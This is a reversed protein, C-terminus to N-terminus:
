WVPPVARLSPGPLVRVGHRGTAPALQHCVTNGLELGARQAPSGPGAGGARHSPGLMWGPFVNGTPARPGLHGPSLWSAGEAGVETPSPTEPLIRSAPPGLAALHRSSRPCFTAEPPEPTAPLSDGNTSLLGLRPQCSVPRPQPAGTAAAWVTVSCPLHSKAGFHAPVAQSAALCGM